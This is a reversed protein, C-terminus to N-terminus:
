TDEQNPDPLAIWAGDAHHSQLVAAVMDVGAIGDVGSPYRLPATASFEGTRVLALDDALDSYFNAFAELMGEPHGLGTRTLRHADESLSAIGQALIQAGGSARRVVLHHPDEHVWELSAREGFIRIRLGHDHGTAAMSAWIRGPTGSGFSLHATLNDAVKRGPVLTDLRASIASAELGTIFRALHFAHTGLDAAASAFGGTEPTMRWVVTPNGDDELRTAAWGSAHEVDIFRIDGLEGDRVLRAAHRVMAYASYCHAVALPVGNAKAIRVLERASQPDQTLPKECAVAIGVELFAKAVEFHSTNPTAVVALEIGDPRASEEEAMAQFNPYAREPAIGLRTAFAQSAESERQFSGSVLRFRGDLRLARRHTSGINSAPGGGIMGVRLADRFEHTM